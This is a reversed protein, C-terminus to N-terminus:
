LLCERKMGDILERRFQSQTAGLVLDIFKDAEDPRLRIQLETTGNLIRM